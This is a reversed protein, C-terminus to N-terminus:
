IKYDRCYTNNKWSEGHEKIDNTKNHVISYECTLHHEIFRETIIAKCYVNNWGQYELTKYWSENLTM